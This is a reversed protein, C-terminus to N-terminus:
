AATNCTPTLGTFTRSNITFQTTNGPLQDTVVISAGAPVDNGGLAIKPSLVFSVSGGAVADGAPSSKVKDVTLDGSNRVTFSSSATTGTNGTATVNSAGLAAGLVDFSVAGSAGVAGDPVVCTLVRTAAVYTCGAPLSGVVVDLENPMTITFSDDAGATTRQWNVTTQATLGMGIDAPVVVSNPIIGAWAMPSAALVAVLGMAKVAHSLVGRSLLGKAVKNVWAPSHYVHSVELYIAWCRASQHLDNLRKVAYWPL